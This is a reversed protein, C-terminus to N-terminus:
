MAFPWPAQSAASVLTSERPSLTSTSSLPRNAAPQPSAAAFSPHSTSVSAPSQRRATRGASTSARRRSSLAPRM